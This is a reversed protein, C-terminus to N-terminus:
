DGLAITTASYPYKTTQVVSSNNVITMTVQSGTAPPNFIIVNASTATAVLKFGKCNDYPTIWPYTIPKVYPTLYAGNVVVSLNKSDTVSANTINTQDTKLLFVAKVGDTQNSVDNMVLPLNTLASSGSVDVLVGDVALAGDITIPAAFLGQFNASVLYSNASAIYTPMPAVLNGFGGGSAAWSLNGTGDTTLVQSSSGGTIKVNGVNGLNSVGTVALNGSLSANAGSINGSTADLIINGTTIGNKVVFNKTTM